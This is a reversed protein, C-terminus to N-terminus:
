SPETHPTHTHTNIHWCGLGIVLLLARAEIESRELSSSMSNNVTRCSFSIRALFKTLKEPQQSFHSSISRTCRKYLSCWCLRVEQSDETQPLRRFMVSTVWSLPYNIFYLLPYFIRMCNAGVEILNMMIPIMSFMYLPTSFHKVAFCCLEPWENYIWGGVTIGIVCNKDFLCLACHTM